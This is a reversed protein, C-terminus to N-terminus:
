TTRTYTVTRSRNFSRRRRRVTSNSARSILESDKSYIPVMNVANLQERDSQTLWPTLTITQPENWFREGAANRRRVIKTTLMELQPKDVSKWYADVAGFYAGAIDKACEARIAPDGQADEPLQSFIDVTAFDVFKAWAEIGAEWNLLSDSKLQIRNWPWPHGEEHQRSKPLAVLLELFKAAGSRIRETTDFMVTVLEYDCGEGGSSCSTPKACLATAVVNLGFQHSGRSFCNSKM